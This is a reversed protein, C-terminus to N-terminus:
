RPVLITGVLRDHLGGEVNFLAAVAYNPILLLAIWWLASYWPGADPLYTQVLISGCLLFGIPFWILAARFACQRRTARGGRKRAIVVGAIWCSLGGRFVFAMGTWLVPWILIQGCFEQWHTYVPKLETPDDEQQEAKQAAQSLAKMSDDVVSEEIAKLWLREIVGLGPLAGQMKTRDQEIRAAVKTMFTPDNMRQAFEPEATLKARGEPTSVLEILREGSRVRKVRELYDTSEVVEIISYIGALVFMVLLGTGVLVGQLVLQTLRAAMTIRAPLGKTRALEERFEKVSAIGKPRLLRTLLREAHVPLAAQVPRTDNASRAQGELLLVTAQRVITLTPQPAQDALPFELVQPRGDPQVWIQEVTLGEPREVECHELEETLQELIPRAEPWPIPDTPRVVDALPAGGPVVYAEWVHRVNGIEVGGNGLPWLRGPRANSTKKTPWQEGPLVRILVRRNLIVDGALVVWGRALPRVKQVAFPGIAGPFDPPKTPMAELRDDRQPVLKVPRPVQPMRLVCTGSLMEHLGRFDNWRRMPVVLALFGVVFPVLHFLMGSLLRGDSLKGFFWGAEALTVTILLYFFLTRLAARKFGPPATTGQRCVRLGLFKKGWSQGFFGELLGFYLPFVCLPVAQGLWRWGLAHQVLFQLGAVFVLRVILEDLLYAGIRIGMGGFNLQEPIMAMLAARLEGLSAYRRTRDRELGKHVVKALDAPVASNISRIPPPDESIIKALAATAHEHHFPARGTLVHYLTACVSYVDSAFDVPEGKIQEPSAYLVTGLFAGSQTLQAATSLSKSLGFDGIKVRGDDVIFCNSPKVDRHIVGLRHAEQLGEIVDLILRIAEPAPLPGREDVLDKLTHGPMLEMVIYPRGHDADAALVFVCRPHAIQAALRGEQRFREVSVPNAQLRHSLIKVAVRTGGALPEAEFVRGMGGEGLPRLIRFGGIQTPTEDHVKEVSVFATTTEGAKPISSDRLRQGCFACFRPPEESDPLSRHCHPCVIPM